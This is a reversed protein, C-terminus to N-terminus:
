RQRMQLLRVHRAADHLTADARAARLFLALAKKPEDDELFLVGGIYLALAHEPDERLISRVVRRLSQSGGEPSGQVRFLAYAELLEAGPGCDDCHRRAEVIQDLAGRWERTLVLERARQLHRSALFHRRRLVQSPRVRRNLEHRLATGAARKPAPPEERPLVSAPPRLSVEQSAGADRFRQLARVAHEARRRGPLRGGVGQPPRPPVESQAKAERAEKSTASHIRPAGSLRVGAPAESERPVRPAKPLRPASLRGAKSVEGPQQLVAPIESRGRPATSPRAQPAEPVDSPLIPPPQSVFRPYRSAEDGLVADETEAVPRPPFASDGVSGHPRQHSGSDMARKKRKPDEQSSAKASAAELQGMLLLGVLLRAAGEGGLGETAADLVMGLPRGDIKALLALEGDSLGLRKGLREPQSRLVVAKDLYRAVMPLLREVGYYRRLAEMMVPELPATHDPSDELAEEGALWNLEVREASLARFLLRQILERQGRAVSEPTALGLRLAVQAFHTGPAVSDDDTRETAVAMVQLFAEESLDGNRVLLRGLTDGGLGDDAYAVRGGRFHFREARPKHLVELVGVAGQRYLAALTRLLLTEEGSVGM